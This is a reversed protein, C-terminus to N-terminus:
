FRQEHFTKGDREYSRIWGERRLVSLYAHAYGLEKGLANAIDQTPRTGDCLDYVQRKVTGERLLRKKAEELKEQNAITLIAKIADLADRIELLIERDSAEPVQNM